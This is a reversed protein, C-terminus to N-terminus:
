KIMDFVKTFEVITRTIITIQYRDVPLIQKMNVLVDNAQELEDTLMYKAGHYRTQKLTHKQRRKTRLQVDVFHKQFKAM